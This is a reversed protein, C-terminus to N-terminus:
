APGAEKWISAKTSSLMLHGLQSVNRHVYLDHVGGAVDRIAVVRPHPWGAKLIIRGVIARQEVTRLRQREVGM